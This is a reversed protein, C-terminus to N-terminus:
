RFKIIDKAYEEDIIRMITDDKKSYAFPNISGYWLIRDDIIIANIPTHENIKKVNSNVEEDTIIEISDNLELLKNLKEKKYYNFLLKVNNANSIDEYLQNSYNSYGYLLEPKDNEDIVNYEEKKYQNLRIQFQHSLKGIKIDVYDYVVVQNKGEYERHIRGTHQQLKGSFKFPMTIFLTNLSGLDFGEGLFSGTSIIIYKNELSNISENFQRRAKAGDSGSITYINDCDHSLLDKLINIHEIRETLVLICKNKKYEEVIDEVIQQNRNSDKYLENLLDAYNMLDYSDKNKFKTFRPKLVKEFTRNSEELTARIPSIIKYIIKELNDSRKPTATFGYIHKAQFKRIIEEYTKSAIHHIEDGIIIEYKDYINDEDKISKISAVDIIGTLKKKAGYYIGPEIVEGNCYIKLFQNIREKWQDLLKVKEVLILTPKKLRSIVEIGMITKGSGTPAILLGNDYKLLTDVANKQTERLIANYEVNIEKLAIRRDEVEYAIDFYELLEVLDNFCGRPLSIYDINEKFLEIIREIKYTSIRKAQKEYFEPNHIIALRKLVSIAKSSLGEKLFYIDDKLIMKFILPFDSIMLNLKKFLKNSIEVDVNDAYNKLILDIDLENIKKVSSLASIQNGYMFFNDDVFVSTKNRVCNGQLPLAICSGIGDKDVVDQSPFFRDYSKFSINKNNQMACTLLYDGLRRAKKCSILSNFFIWVHAGEGSQSLEIISDINHKDCEKKYALACEKFEKDDFDIALFYCNNNIVPYIAYAKKGIFHNYVEDAGFDKRNENPCNICHKYKSMDCLDRNFRNNCVKAYAKKGDKIYKEAYVDNRGIFYSLYTKIKDDTTLIKEKEFNYDINNKRLLEKLRNNEEKLRKNEALLEETTMNM